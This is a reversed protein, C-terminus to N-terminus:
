TVSLVLGLAFIGDEGRVFNNAVLDAAPFIAFAATIALPVLVAVAVLLPLWVVSCVIVGKSVRMLRDTFRVLSM